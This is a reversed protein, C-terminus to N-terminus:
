EICIDCEANNSRTADKVQQENVDVRIKGSKFKEM